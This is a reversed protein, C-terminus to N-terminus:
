KQFTSAQHHVPWSTTPLFDVYPQEAREVLLFVAKIEYNEMEEAAKDQVTLPGM